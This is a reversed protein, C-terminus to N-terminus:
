AIRRWWPGRARPRDTQSQATSGHGSALGRRNGRDRVPEKRGLHELVERLVALRGREAAAARERSPRALARALPVAFLLVSFAFPIVGLVIPTGSDLVPTPVREFMHSVKELTLGNELASSAMLLNFANLAMIALNTGVPNGTLPPLPRVRTWAPPPPESHATDAATKRIAAFRYVIGGDESVDVDGEYDLMLRAMMPDAQERSLGTVRMVDALGIRGRGARIASLVLRENERADRPPEPPGFFFRNVREYLPVRPGRSRAARRAGWGDGDSSYYVSFPSWPHFTWFFADGLVRLLGYALEGGPLGGSDRRSDGGQRAFTGGLILALFLAAYGVLAIMVWARVVFRLVSMAGHGLTGLVAKWAERVEWPKSFGTPFVHVLEGETTVRLQGRFESSLWKLGSEADRLALGSKAAADAVTMPHKPDVHARVIAAAAKADLFGPPM